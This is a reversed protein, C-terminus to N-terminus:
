NSDRLWKDLTARTMGLASAVRIKKGGFAQMARQVHARQATKMDWVTEAQQMRTPLEDINVEAGMDRHFVYLNDIVNRLERLNGPFEYSELFQQTDKSLKLPRVDFRDAGNILERHIFAQRESLSRDIFPKLSLEVVALRYYLDWRFKGAACREPLDRHSAAVIRIDIPREKSSGLRQVTREQLVRLMTQQMYPSIDGIEDLFLTGGTANEFIGKTDKEAGTFAGKVYGFLRSELLNDAFAACNVRVFAKGARSSQDHIYQAVDEKGAGSPGHILVSVNDTEAVAKALAYVPALSETDRLMGRASVDTDHQKTAIDDVTVSIEDLKIYERIGPREDKRMSPKRTQFLRLPHKRSLALFYWAAQMTGTGPSVFAELRDSKETATVVEREMIRRLENFDTPDIVQVDHLAVKGAYDKEALYRKISAKRNVDEDGSKERQVLVIHQKCESFADGQWLSGTPGDSKFLGKDFDKTRALWSLLM